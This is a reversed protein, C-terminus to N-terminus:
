EEEEAGKIALDAGCVDCNGQPTIKPLHRTDKGCVGCKEKVVM